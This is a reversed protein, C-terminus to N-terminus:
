TLSHLVCANCVIVRYEILNYLAFGIHIFLLSSTLLLTSVLNAKAMKIHTLLDIIYPQQSLLLGNQYPYSNGCSIIQPHLNSPLNLPLMLPSLLVPTFHTPIKFFSSIPKTTLWPNLALIQLHCLIPLHPFLHNIPLIIILLFPKSILLLTTPLQKLIQHGLPKTSQYWIYLSFFLLFYSM